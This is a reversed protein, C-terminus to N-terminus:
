PPGAQVCASLESTNGSVDTATARVFEGVNPASTLTFSFAADGNSDTGVFTSGLFREASGGTATCTTSAYFDLTFTEVPVSNLTGQVSGDSLAQTIVPFNQYNNPGVDGDGADNPTIGDAGNTLAGNMSGLDIAPGGNDVFTNGTLHNETNGAGIILVGGEINGNIANGVIQNATSGVGRIFVGQKALGAGGGVGNNSINNGGGQVGVFNSPSSNIWVGSNLNDTVVNNYILTGSANGPM